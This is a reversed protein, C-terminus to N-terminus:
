KFPGPTTTAFKDGSLRYVLLEVDQGTKPLLWYPTRTRQDSGNM